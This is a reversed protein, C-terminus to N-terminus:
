TDDHGDFQCIPAQLAIGTPGPLRGSVGDLLHLHLPDRQHEPAVVLALDGLLVGRAVVEVPDRPTEREPHAGRNRTELAASASQRAGSCRLAAASM